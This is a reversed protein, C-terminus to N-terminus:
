AYVGLYLLVIGIALAIFGYNAFHNKKIIKKTSKVIMEPEILLLAGKLVSLWAIITIVVRWDAVWLNHLKVLVFGVVLAVAGGFYMLAESKLFNDMVSKYYKPNILAGIGVCVYLVGLLQALFM